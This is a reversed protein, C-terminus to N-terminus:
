VAANSAELQYSEMLQKAENLFNAAGVGNVVRHDFTMTLTTKNRFEIGDPGAVARPEVTGVAITAVAPTVIVPIGLQVRARGINSVTVTTTADIQDEGDRVRKIQEVLADRFGARDLEDASRVVATRLLDGPIAVAVGLNVRKYTRLIKGDGSISSRLTPHRIMAQVICWLAM